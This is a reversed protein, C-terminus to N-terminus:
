VRQVGKKAASALARVPFYATYAALALDLRGVAALVIWLHWRVDAHGMLRVARTIPSPSSTHLTSPSGASVHPQGLNNSKSEDSTPLTSVVFLYKGMGYTMGLVLWAVNGTQAYTGWAIGGHLAMDGLEDLSADLWRGFESATGQLRALHGDATDLVLGLALALAIALGVFIGPPAFAAMSAASLVLAASAITLGNPRVRTPRLIRALSRAPQLAWYRGLPQYTQRRTLEADAGTLGHPQDLRWLVATEPDGGRRVAKRLRAPDYLRDTRLVVSSEAPPGTSFAFLGAHRDQLLTELRDHDELRAHIVVSKADLSVALDVLHALVSRGQILEGALPGVPGRPRADIVLSVTSRSM